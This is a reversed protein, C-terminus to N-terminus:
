KMPRVGVFDLRSFFPKSPTRQLREKLMQALLLTIAASLSPVGDDRECRSGFMTNFWLTAISEAISVHQGLKSQYYYFPMTTYTPLVGLREYFEVGGGQIQRIEMAKQVGRGEKGLLMEEQEKNLRM